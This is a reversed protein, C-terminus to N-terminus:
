PLSPDFAINFRAYESNPKLEIYHYLLPRIFVLDNKKLHYKRDEIVYTGDGKEFFLLEYSNHSHLMFPEPKLGPNTYLIHNYILQNTSINM